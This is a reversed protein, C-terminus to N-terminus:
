EGNGETRRRVFEGETRGFYDRYIQMAVPAANSGGSGGHQLFVVLVLSPEEVPAWSAYWAHDRFRLSKEKNKIRKKGFTHVQATGTKGSVTFDPARHRFSTGGPENSAMWLGKNVAELTEPKVDLTRRVQPPFSFQISGDGNRVSDVLRPEYLTGGNALAGYAMAIQLPTALTDGQGLVTNLAHGPTYGDPHNNEYWDRTPIRGPTEPLIFGSPEGFGLMTAYHALTDVGVLNAVKYYYVDCSRQLAQHLNMSGHGSRKWCRFDRGGFRYRGGCGVTDDLQMANTELAAFSGVIKYVSGPFYGQVSKNMMPKFPDLDADLKEFSSLRDSWANPNLSPKSYMARISGDRPDVAVVAASPYAAVANDIIIQLEADITLNIDRGPIMGVSKYDGILFREAETDHQQIGAADVVKRHIGPSGRLVPEFAKEIGSRGIVDGNRYGFEKLNKLDSKGIQSVFGLVHQSIQHLPYTRQQTARIEIGPLNTLEAELGALQGRTIDRRILIDGSRKEAREAVGNIEVEGIDLISALLLLVNDDGHRRFLKPALYVDFSARNTAIAVGHKDFIEGRTPRVDVNRVINETSLRQYREGDIVQVFWLRLLLAGFVIAVFGAFWLYRLNYNPLQDRQLSM